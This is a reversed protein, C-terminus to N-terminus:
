LFDVGEYGFKNEALTKNRKEKIVNNNITIKCYDNLGSVV